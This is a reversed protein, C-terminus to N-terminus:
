DYLSVSWFKPRMPLYKTHAFYKQSSLTGRETQPWETCKRNEDVQVHQIESIALWLAFRILKPGWPYTNLTYLTSKVWHKLETKPWETCKRTKPIKYRTSSFPRINPGWFYTNLAHLTSKGTLHELDTQPWETCKWNTVVKYRSKVLM